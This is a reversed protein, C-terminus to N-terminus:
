VLALCITAFFGGALPISFNDEIRGTFLETLAGGLAIVASILIRTGLTIHPTVLSFLIFLTLASSLFFGLTGELSKGGAIKRKGWKKGVISAVPDGVGLMLTGAVIAHKPM